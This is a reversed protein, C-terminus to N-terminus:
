SCKCSHTHTHTKRQKNRQTTYFSQQDKDVCRYQVTSFYSLFLSFTQSQRWLFERWTNNMEKGPSCMTAHSVKWVCGLCKKVGPLNLLIMNIINGHNCVLWRINFMHKFRETLKCKHKPDYHIILSRHADRFGCSAGFPWPAEGSERRESIFSFHEPYPRWWSSMEERDEVSRAVHRRHARLQLRLHELAVSLVRLLGQVTGAQGFLVHGADLSGLHATLM